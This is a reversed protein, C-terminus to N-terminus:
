EFVAFYRILDLISGYKELTSNPTYSGTQETLKDTKIVLYYTPPGRFPGRDVLVPQCVLM